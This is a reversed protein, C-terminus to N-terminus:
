TQGQTLPVVSMLDAPFPGPQTSGQLVSGLTKPVSKVLNVAIGSLFRSTVSYALVM